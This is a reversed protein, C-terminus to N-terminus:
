QNEQDGQELLLNDLDRRTLGTVPELGLVDRDEQSLQYFGFRYPGNREGLQKRAKILALEGVGTGRLKTLLGDLEELSPKIFQLIREKWKKFLLM